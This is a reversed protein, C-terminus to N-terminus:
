TFVLQGEQTPQRVVRLDIIRRRPDNCVAWAGKYCCEYRTDLSVYDAVIKTHGLPDNFCSPPFKVSLEDTDTGRWIETELSVRQQGTGTSTIRIVRYLMNKKM